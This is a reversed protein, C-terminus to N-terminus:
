ALHNKDRFERIFPLTKRVTTIIGVVILVAGVTKNTGDAVTAAGLSIVLLGTAVLSLQLVRNKTSPLM